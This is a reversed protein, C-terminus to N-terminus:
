ALKVLDFGDATIQCTVRFRRCALRQSSQREGQFSRMLLRKLARQLCPKLLMLAEEVFSRDVLFGATRVVRVLRQSARIQAQFPVQVVQNVKSAYGTKSM